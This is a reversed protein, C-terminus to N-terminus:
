NRSLLAVHKGSPLYFAMMFELVFANEISM